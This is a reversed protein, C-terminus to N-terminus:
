RAIDEAARAPVPPLASLEPYLHCAARQNPGVTQMQPTETRCREFAFPCRPHFPCGEPLDM